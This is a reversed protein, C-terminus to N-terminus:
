IRGRKKGLKMKENNLFLGSLGIPVARTPFPTSGDPDPGDDLPWMRSFIGVKEVESGDM